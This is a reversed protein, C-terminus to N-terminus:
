WRARLDFHGERPSRYLAGHECGSAVLTGDLHEEVHIAWAACDLEAAARQRLREHRELFVESESREPPLSRCCHSCPQRFTDGYCGALLALFPLVRM